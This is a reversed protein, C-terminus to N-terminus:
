FLLFPAPSHSCNVFAIVCICEAPIGLEEYTERLACEAATEGPEFRGGPFCVEGPQRGVRQSRVELLIFLEGEKEVVPVLVAFHGNASQFGPIRGTFRKNFDDITFM